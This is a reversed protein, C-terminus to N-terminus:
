LKQVWGLLQMGQKIWLGLEISEATINHIGCCGVFQNNSGLAVMVLDTNKELGKKSEQVFSLIDNRDGTPNFPM